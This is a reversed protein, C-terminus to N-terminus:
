EFRLQMSTAIRRATARASATPGGLVAAGQNGNSLQYLACSGTACWDPGGTFVLERISGAVTRDSRVSVASTNFGPPEAPTVDIWITARRPGSITTRLLGPNLETEPALNWGRGSPVEAAYYGSTPAYTRFANPARSTGPGGSGHTARVGPPTSAREGVTREVTQTRVREVTATDTDTDTTASPAADGNRSTLGVAAGAGTTLLLAGVVVGSFWRRRTGRPTLSAPTSAAAAATRQARPARAAVPIPTTLNTPEEGRVPIGTLARGTAV